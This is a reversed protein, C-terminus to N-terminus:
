ARLQIKQLLYLASGMLEYQSPTLTTCFRRKHQIAKLLGKKNVDARRLVFSSSNITVVILAAIDPAKGVFKTTLRVKKNDVDYTTNLKIIM